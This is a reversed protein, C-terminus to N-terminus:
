LAYSILKVFFTIFGGQASTLVVIIYNYTLCEFPLFHFLLFILFVLSNKNQNDTNFGKHVFLYKLYVFFCQLFDGLLHSTIKPQVFPFFYNFFTLATKKWGLHWILAVHYSYQIVYSIYHSYLTHPTVKTQSLPVFYLSHFPRLDHLHSSLFVYNVFFFGCSLFFPLAM